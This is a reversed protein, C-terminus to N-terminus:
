VITVVEKVKKLEEATLILKLMKLNWFFAQKSCFRRFENFFSKIFIKKFNDDLGIPKTHTNRSPYFDICEDAKDIKTLLLTKKSLMYPQEKLIRFDKQRVFM